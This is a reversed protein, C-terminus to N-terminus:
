CIDMRVIPVALHDVALQRVLWIRQRELGATELTYQARRVKIEHDGIFWDKQQERIVECDKTCRDAAENIRYTPALAM